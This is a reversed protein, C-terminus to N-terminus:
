HATTKNGISFSLVLQGHENPAVGFEVGEEDAKGFVKLMFEIEQPMLSSLDLQFFGRGEPTHLNVALTPKTKM